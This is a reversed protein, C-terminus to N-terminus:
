ERPQQPLKSEPLDNQALPIDQVVTSITSIVTAPVPACLEYLMPTIRRVHKMVMTHSFAVLSGLITSWSINLGRTHEPKNSKTATYLVLQKSLSLMLTLSAPGSALHWVQRWVDHESFLVVHQRSCTGTCFLKAAGWVHM